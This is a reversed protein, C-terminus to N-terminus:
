EFTDIIEKFKHGREEFSKFQDQSACAPSFLVTDGPNALNYALKVAEELNDTPTVSLDRAQCFEKIKERWLM